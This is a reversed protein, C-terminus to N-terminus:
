EKLGTVKKLRGGWPGRRMIALSFSPKKESLFNDTKERYVLGFYITNTYQNSLAFYTCYRM